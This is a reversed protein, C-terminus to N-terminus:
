LRQTYIIFKSAKHNGIINMVLDIATTEASYISAENSLHKLSKKKKKKKKKKKLFLWVVLKKEKNPDM